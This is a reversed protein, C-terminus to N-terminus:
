KKPGISDQDEHKDENIFERTKKKRMGVKARVPKLKEIEM